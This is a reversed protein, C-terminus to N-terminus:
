PTDKKPIGEATKPHFEIQGLCVRKTLHYYNENFVEDVLIDL